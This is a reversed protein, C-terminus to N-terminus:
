NIQCGFCSFNIDGNSSSVSIVDTASLTVGLTLVVTDNEPIYAGAIIYQSATQSAGGPRICIGYGGTPTTEPGGNCIVITSIVAQKGTPVTYLTNLGSAIAPRVQGLVRYETPM